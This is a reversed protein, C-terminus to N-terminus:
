GSGLLWAMPGRHPLPNVVLSHFRCHFTISSVMIICFIFQSLQLCWVIINGFIGWTGGPGAAKSNFLMQVPTLVIYNKWCWCIHLPWIDCIYKFSQTVLWCRLYKWWQSTWILFSLRPSTLFQTPAWVAPLHFIIIQVCTGKSLGHSHFQRWICM